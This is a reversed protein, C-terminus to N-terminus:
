PSAQMASQNTRFAREIAERFAAVKEARVQGMRNTDCAAGRIGVIDPRFLAIMKAHEIKLSGAVAFKAGGAHVEDRLKLLVAPSKFDFLSQSSKSFTDLLFISFTSRLELAIQRPSITKAVQYDAYAAVVLQSYGGIWKGARVWRTRLDTPNEFQSAGFKLWGYEKLSVTPPNFAAERLEGLAASLPKRRAVAIAIEQLTELDAAGLPGRSPEKVDIIDAGGEIASNAEEANRVSVLLLPQHSTM